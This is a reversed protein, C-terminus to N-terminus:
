PANGDRSEHPAESPSPSALPAQSAGPLPALVFGNRNPMLVHPLTAQSVVANKPVLGDQAFIYACLAYIEDAGLSGPKSPPMARRIYDFVIPAAPWYSNVTRDPVKALSGVGGFLAPAIPAGHCAECKTEYLTQGRAVSGRGPPLGTGDPLIEDSEAAVLAAPAPRGIEARAALAPLALALAALLALGASRARDSSRM